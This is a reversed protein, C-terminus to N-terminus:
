GRWYSSYLSSNRSSASTSTRPATVRRELLWGPRCFGWAMWMTVMCSSTGDLTGPTDQSGFRLVRATQGEKRLQLGIM